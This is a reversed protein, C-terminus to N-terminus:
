KAEQDLLSIPMRFPRQSVDFDDETPVFLQPLRAAIRGLHLRRLWRDLRPYKPEKRAIMDYIAKDRAFQEALWEAAEQSVAQAWAEVDIHEEAM